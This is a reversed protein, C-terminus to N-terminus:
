EAAQACPECTPCACTAETWHKPAAKPEDGEFYAVGDVIVIARDDVVRPAPKLNVPRRDGRRKVVRPAGDPVRGETPEEVAFAPRYLGPLLEAMRSWTRESPTLSAGSKFLYYDIVRATYPKGERSAPNVGMAEALDASTEYGNARM